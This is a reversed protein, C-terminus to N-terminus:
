AAEDMWAGQWLLGNIVAKGELQDRMPTAKKGPFASKVKLFFYGLDTYGFAVRKLVKIKNNVGELRNTTFGFRGARIIGEERRKLMMAFRKAPKFDYRKNISLLLARIQHLRSIAESQSKERWLNRLMDAIPYLAALLANDTIIQNLLEERQKRKEPEVNEESTILVWDSNRLPKLAARVAEGVKKKDVPIGAKDAEQLAKATARETADKQAKKKAEALVDERWHKMVHFLDYVITALPLNERVMRPYAANQDCAVSRINAAFGEQKLRDFFPQVDKISKGKCLFLVKCSDNDIIVTAYKRPKQVCFEDIALNQVHGLDVRDYCFKLQEKDINKVTRWSLGTIRAVDSISMSLCRLLGQAYLVMGKTVKARPAIFAPQRTFTHGCSCRFRQVVFVLKTPQHPYIPAEIATRIQQAHVKHCTCHCHPCIAPRQYPVLKVTLWGSQKDFQDSVPKYEPWRKLSIESARSPQVNNRDVIRSM